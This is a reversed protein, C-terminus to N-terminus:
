VATTTSEEWAAYNHIKSFASFADFSFTNLLPTKLAYWPNTAKAHLHAHHNLARTSRTERHGYVYLICVHHHETLSARMLSQYELFLPSLRTSFYTADELYTSSCVGGVVEGYLWM